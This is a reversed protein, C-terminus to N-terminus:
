ISPTLCGHTSGSDKIVVSYRSVFEQLVIANWSHLPTFALSLGIVGTSRPRSTTRGSAGLGRASRRYSTLRSTTRSRSSTVVILRLELRNTLHSSIFYLVRLTSRVSCRRARRLRLM